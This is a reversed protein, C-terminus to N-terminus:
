VYSYELESRAGECKEYLSGTVGESERTNM